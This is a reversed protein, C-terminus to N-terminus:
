DIRFLLRITMWRGGKLENELESRSLGVNQKSLGV